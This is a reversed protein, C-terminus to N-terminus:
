HRNGVTALVNDVGTSNVLGQFELAIQGAGFGHLPGNGSPYYRIRLTGQGTSGTYTGGSNGNVTWTFQTPLGHFGPQQADAVLDLGLANGGTTVNKGSLLAVGTVPQTTDKPFFYVFNLNIHFLSNSGGSALVAVQFAQDTFRGQGTGYTGVVKAVFQQRALEKPTPQPATTGGGATAGLASPINFSSHAARLNAAAFLGAYSLLAREELREVGV